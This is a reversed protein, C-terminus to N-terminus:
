ERPEFTVEVREGERREEVRAAARLAQKDAETVPELLSRPWLRRAWVVNAEAAYLLIQAGLYLWSMLGIVIALAGYTKSARNVIRAVYVGGLAQLVTWGIAAVVIGLWLQRTPVTESTFLRFVAWFLGVNLLGSVVFGAVKLETGGLGGGALTGVAASIAVNGLGLVLLILLGRLRATLFNRRLRHPIDWVQDMARQGALAIGLGSWIAALLGLVLAVTSGGLADVQIDTGILPFRGITSSVIDDYLDRNGSLLFGFVTVFVLLLSLLAFFGYWAMLAALNGAHDDSFKKVVGLPFGLAGRRRQLRDLARVPTLPDVASNYGTGRRGPAAGGPPRVARPRSPLNGCRVPLAAMRANALDNLPWSLEHAKCDCASYVV